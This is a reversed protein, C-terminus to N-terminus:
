AVPSTMARRVMEAVFANKGSTYASRDGRFKLALIRKLDAYEQAAQSHARLYDRFALHERFAKSGPSCVYLHHRVDQVPALFAERGPIGLDGQHVYGLKALCQIAAPLETETTLLVDIDVIPKAALNPVATSGIHEISAAMTGLAGAIRRHLFQFREPWGPDYDVIIIPEPM